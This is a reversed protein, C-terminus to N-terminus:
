PSTSRSLFFYRQLSCPDSSLSHAFGYSRHIPVPVRIEAEERKFGEVGIAYGRRAYKILRKEYAWSRLDLNVVNTKTAIADIARPLGYFQNGDFCVACCDIDFPALLQVPDVMSRCIVQFVTSKRSPGPIVFSITHPTRVCLSGSTTKLQTWLSSIKNRIDRDSLGYIFLDVDGNCSFDSRSKGELAATVAGGAVVMSSFLGVPLPKNADLGMISLLNFRAEALTAVCGVESVTKEMIKPLVCERPCLGPIRGGGQEFLVILNDRWDDGTLDIAYM